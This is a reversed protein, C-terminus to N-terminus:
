LEELSAMEAWSAPLAGGLANGSADFRTLAGLAPGWAGPLTGTLRNRAVDIVRLRAARAWESPLTGARAHTAYPRPNRLPPVQARLRKM